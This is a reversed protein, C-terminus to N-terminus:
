AEWEIKRQGVCGYRCGNKAETETSYSTSVTNDGYVNFWREHKTKAPKPPPAVHADDLHNSLKTAIRLIEESLGCNLQDISKRTTAHRQEALARADAAERELKASRKALLVANDNANTNVEEVRAAMKHMQDHMWTFNQVDVPLERAFLAKINTEADAVRATLKDLRM